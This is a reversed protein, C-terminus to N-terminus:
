PPVGHPSSQKDVPNVVVITDRLEKNERRLRRVEEWLRSILDGLRDFTEVLEARDPVM